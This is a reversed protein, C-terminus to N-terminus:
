ARPPWIVAAGNYVATITSNGLPLGSTTFSATGGSVPVTALATTGQLFSVTGTTVPMTRTNVTATFTIPAGPHSPNSSSGLGTTTVSQLPGITVSTAATSVAFPVNGGAGSRGAVVNQFANQIVPASVITFLDGEEYQYGISAALISFGLNIGSAANTDVLQTYQTGAALGNLTVIFTSGAQFVVPGPVVLEGARRVCRDSQGPPGGSISGNVDLTGAGAEISGTGGFEITGTTLTGNGSM